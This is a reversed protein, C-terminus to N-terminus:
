AMESIWNIIYDFREHTLAHGGHYRKHCLNEEAGHIIYESRAQEFIYDADRSYKDEDASVILFQRPAICAVVDTIDYIKNFNPIVSAMEIGVDNQIRNKYTCASGSACGFSIREDIASLFLTTNGGYSHGMTGIKQKNVFPLGLLLSIGNMADVLVKNMLNDGKIIRYCMENYHQWLDGDNPLPVTGRANKRRDEFCISDPALVVFGKRALAPAFAQLPNGSLGCVESKGLHYERNHQHHILITPNNNLIDPILLFANVKDGFSKYQIQQRTYGNEKVSSIVDYEIKDQLNVKSVGIANEIKEKLKDMM